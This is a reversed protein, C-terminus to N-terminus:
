FLRAPQTLGARLFFASSFNYIANVSDRLPLGLPGHVHACEQARGSGRVM